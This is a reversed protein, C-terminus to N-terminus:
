DAAQSTNRDSYREKSLRWIAFMAAVFFFVGIPYDLLKILDGDILTITQGLSSEFRPGLFFAIIFIITSYGFSMMVYGLIAFILMVAVGFLGGTALGVGVFCLLISTSYIFSEPAVLIRSWLRLGLLGVVFNIVNAILMAGFLGYVLQGQSEFLLPGPEFGQIMLASIILAANISGPIGLTFLPIMSAGTVASNASEAAAIGQINGKGFTEPEKSAKKTLGYSLYAAATSGVGPIIGILSGIVAGRLYVFRSTWFEKLSISRDERPQNKPICIVSQSTEFRKSLKKLIESIALMGIAVSALPLGDYLEFWQFVFRPTFHQPDSGVTAVLLGLIASVIGKIISDGILGAIVAFAGIMLGLVEVPGMQLAIISLPAAITILLIDAFIDGTVSAYLAMKMAKLPKGKQSLPYGDQATAAADPTGPTNMLVAPIAGGVLGGKNIGILLGIAALPSLVFSFPITIAMAMVPGIGPIAGVFQGIVVGLLVYLITTLTFADSLGAFMTVLDM